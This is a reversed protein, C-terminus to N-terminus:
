PIRAVVASLLFLLCPSPFARQAITHYPVSPIAFFRFSLFSHGERGFARVRSRLLGFAGFVGDWCNARITGGAPLSHCPM